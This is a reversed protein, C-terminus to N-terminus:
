LLDAYLHSVIQLELINDGLHRYEPFNKKVWIVLNHSLRRNDNYKKIVNLYRRTIELHETTVVQLQKINEWNEVDTQTLTQYQQM